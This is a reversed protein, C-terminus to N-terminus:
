RESQDLHQIWAYYGGKLPQVATYGLKALGHAARVATADEPCACLTVVPCQKPWHSLARKMDSLEAQISVDISGASAVLSASRLDLLLPPAESELAAALDNATIHPIAAM